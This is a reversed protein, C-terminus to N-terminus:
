TGIVIEVQPVEKRQFRYAYFDTSKWTWAVEHNEMANYGVLKRPQVHLLYPAPKFANNSSTILQVLFYDLFSSQVM